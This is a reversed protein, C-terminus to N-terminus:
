RPQFHGVANRQSLQSRDPPPRQQTNPVDIVVQSAHSRELKRLPTVFTTVKENKPETRPQSFHQSPMPKNKLDLLPTRLTKGTPLPTAFIQEKKCCLSQSQHYRKSSNFPKEDVRDGLNKRAMSTDLSTKAAVEFSRKLKYSFSSKVLMQPPNEVSKSADAALNSFSVQKIKMEKNAPQEKTLQTASQPVQLSVSPGAFTKKENSHQFEKLSGRKKKELPELDSTLSANFDRM